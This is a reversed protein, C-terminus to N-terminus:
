KVPRRLLNIRYVRTTPNPVVALMWCQNPAMSAVFGELTRMGMTSDQYLFAQPAGFEQEAGSRTARQVLYPMTNGLSRSFMLVREDQSTWAGANEGMANVPGPLAGGPQSPNATYYIQRRGGERTSTYYMSQVAGGRVVVHPDADEQNAVPQAGVPFLLQATGSVQLPGALSSTGVFQLRRNQYPGVAFYINSTSTPWTPIMPDASEVTGMSFAQGLSPAAGLTLSATVMSYMTGVGSRNTSFVITQPNVPNDVRGGFDNGDSRLGPANLPLPDGFPRCTDCPAAPDSICGADSEGADM